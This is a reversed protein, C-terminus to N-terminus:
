PVGKSRPERTGVTVGGRRICVSYAACEYGLKSNKNSGMFGAIMLAVNRDVLLRKCLLMTCYQCAAVAPLVLQQM